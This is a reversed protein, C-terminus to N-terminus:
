HKQWWAGSFTKAPLVTQGQTASIHGPKNLPFDGEAGRHNWAFAQVEM